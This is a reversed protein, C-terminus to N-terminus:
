KSKPLVRKVTPAKTLKKRTRRSISIKRKGGRQNAKALSLLTKYIIRINAYQHPIQIFQGEPIQVVLEHYSQDDFFYVHDAPVEKGLTRLMYRVDDMTKTFLTQNGDTIVKKARIQLFMDKPDSTYKLDFIPTDKNLKEGPYTDNYVQRIVEETFTVYDLSANNTLLLIAAVKGSGNQKLHLAEIILAVTDKNMFSPDKAVEYMDQINTSHFWKSVLDTYFLTDDLDFVLVLPNKKTPTMEYVEKQSSASAAVLSANSEGYAEIEEQYERLTAALNDMDRKSLNSSM